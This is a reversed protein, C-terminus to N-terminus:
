STSARSAERARQIAQWVKEPTAPMDVKVQGLPSLADCLANMIAPPAGIAGAEGAGKAGLPNTTCPMDQIFKIEMEPMDDARPM